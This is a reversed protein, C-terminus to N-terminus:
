PRFRHAAASRIQLGADAPRAPRHHHHASAISRECARPIRSQQHRRHERNGRRLRWSLWRLCPCFYDHPDNGFEDSTRAAQHEAGLYPPVDALAPEISGWVPAGGNSEPVGKIQDVLVQIQPRALTGGHARGFGPMPTGARGESVIQTLTDSPVIARFLPDNLPPAPGLKGDVGHCAACNTAYIVAFDVSNEPSSPMDALKPKGPLNGGSALVWCAAGILCITAMLLSTRLSKPPQTANDTM